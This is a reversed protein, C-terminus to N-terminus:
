FKSRLKIIKTVISNCEFEEKTLSYPQPNVQVMDRIRKGTDIDFEKIRSALLAILNAYKGQPSEHDFEGEITALADWFFDKLEQGHNMAATYLHGVNLKDQDFLSTLMFLTKSRMAARGLSISDPNVIPNTSYFGHKINSM